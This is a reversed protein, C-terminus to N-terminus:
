SACIAKLFPVGTQGVSGNGPGKTAQAYGSAFAGVAGPSSQAFAAVMQGYCSPPNSASGFASTAVGLALLGCAAFTVGFRRM